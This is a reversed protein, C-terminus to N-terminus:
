QAHMAAFQQMRGDFLISLQASAANLLGPQYAMLVVVAKVISPLEDLGIYRRHAACWEKYQACAIDWSVDTRRYPICPCDEQEIEWADVGDDSTAIRWGEVYVVDMAGDHTDDGEDVVMLEAAYATIINLADQVQKTTPTWWYDMRELITNM